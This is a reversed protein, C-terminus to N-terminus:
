KKKYMANFMDNDVSMFKTTITGTTHKMAQYIRYGYSAIRVIVIYIEVGERVEDNEYIIPQKDDEMDKMQKYLEEKILMVM